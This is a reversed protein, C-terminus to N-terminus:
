PSDNIDEPDIEYEELYVDMIDQLLDYGEIEEPEYVEPVYEPEVPPKKVPLPPKRLLTLFEEYEEVEARFRSSKSARSWSVWRGTKSDYPRDSITNYRIAM